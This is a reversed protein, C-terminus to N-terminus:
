LTFSTTFPPMFRASAIAAIVFFAASAIPM